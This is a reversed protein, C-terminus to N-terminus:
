NTQLNIYGRFHFTKVCVLPEDQIASVSASAHVDAVAARRNQQLTAEENIASISASANVMETVAPTGQQNTENATPGSSNFNLNQTSSSIIEGNM